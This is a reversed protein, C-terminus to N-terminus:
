PTFFHLSESKNLTREIQRSHYGIYTCTITYNGEPLTISYFGYQNSNVGRGKLNIVITAGILTEGSLSDKVYGSLTFRNQAYSQFTLLCFLLVSLLRFWLQFLGNKGPNSVEM